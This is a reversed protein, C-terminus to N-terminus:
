HKIGWSVLDLHDHTEKLLINKTGNSVLLLSILNILFNKFIQSEEVPKRKQSIPM